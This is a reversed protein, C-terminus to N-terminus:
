YRILILITRDFLWDSEVVAPTSKHTKGKPAPNWIRDLYEAKTEVSLEEEFVDRDFKIGQNQTAASRMGDFAIKESSLM